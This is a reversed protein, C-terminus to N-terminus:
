ETSCVKGHHTTTEVRAVASRPRPRHQVRRASSGGGRLQSGRFESRGAAPDDAAVAKKTATTAPAEAAGDGSENLTHQAQENGEAQRAKVGRSESSVMAPPPPTVSDPRRVAASKPRPPNRFRAPSATRSGANVPAPSPSRYQRRDRRCRPPHLMTRCASRPAHIATLQSAYRTNAQRKKSSCTKRTQTQLQPFGLGEKCRICDLFVSTRVRLLFKASSFTTKPKSIGLGSFTFASTSAFDRM